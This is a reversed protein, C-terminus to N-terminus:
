IANNYEGPEVDSFDDKDNYEAGEIPEGTFRTYTVYPVRDPCEDEFRNIDWRDICNYIVVASELSGRHYQMDKLIVWQNPYIQQIQQWTHRM